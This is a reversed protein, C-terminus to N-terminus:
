PVNRYLFNIKQCYFNVPIAMGSVTKVCARKKNAQWGHM